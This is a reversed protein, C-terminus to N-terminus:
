CGCGMSRRSPTSPLKWPSNAATRGCGAGTPGPRSVRRRAGPVAPVLVRSPQGLLENSSYGFLAEVAANVLVIRDNEDVMVMGNPSGEIALRFRENARAVEATQASIRALMTNFANTLEGLEDDGFRRAAITYDGSESIARSTRILERVPRALTSQLRLAILVAAAMALVTILLATWIDFWKRDVMWRSDYVLALTGLPADNLSVPAHHILWRDERYLGEPRPRVDPLSDSSHRRDQVAFLGGQADFLYATVLHDIGGLAALAAAAEEPRDFTMTPAVSFAIVEGQAQLSEAVLEHMRAQQMAVLAISVLSAAALSAVAALVILRTRFSGMSKRRLLAPVKV